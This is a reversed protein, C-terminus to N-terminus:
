FIGHALHAATYPPKYHTRLFDYLIAGCLESDTTGQGRPQVVYAMSLAFTTDIVYATHFSCSPLM